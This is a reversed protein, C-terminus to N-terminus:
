SIQWLQLRLKDAVIMSWGVRYDNIADLGINICILTDLESDIRSLIVDPRINDEKKVGM